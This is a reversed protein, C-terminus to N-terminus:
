AAYLVEKRQQVKQLFYPDKIATLMVLDIERGLLNKMAELLGFYANAHEGQKLPKFEVLLDIDSSNADFDETLASGFIELRSVNFRACIREIESRNKEILELM